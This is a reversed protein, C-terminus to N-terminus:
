QIATLSVDGSTTSVTFSNTGYRFDDTYVTGSVTNIRPANQYLQRPLNLDVEGSVTTIDISGCITTREAEVDGSTSEALFSGFIDCNELETEGSITSVDVTGPELRTSVGKLDVDGSTTSVLIGKSVECTELTISGSVSGAEVQEATLNKMTVEGSTCNIDVDALNLQEMKLEGSTLNLELSSTMGKPIEITVDYNEELFSLNFYIGSPSEKRYFSITKQGTQGNAEEDLVYEDGIGEVYHIHIQRDSSPYVYVNESTLSVCLTSLNEADLTVEKRERSADRSVDQLGIGWAAGAIVTGALLFCIGLILFVKTFRKM